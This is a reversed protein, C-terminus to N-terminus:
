LRARNAGHEVLRARLVGTLMRHLMPYGAAAEDFSARWIELTEIPGAAIVTASRDAGTLLGMEGVTQGVGLEALVVP